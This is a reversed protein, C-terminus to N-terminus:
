GEFVGYKELILKGIKYLYTDAALRAERASAILEPRGSIFEGVKAPSDVEFNFTGKYGADILGRMIADYDVSYCLPATHMDGSIKKGYQRVTTFGSNDHLHVGGLKSGLRTIESYQDLGNCNAHGVDWNARVLPSGVGDIITLLDDATTVFYSEEPYAYGINEVLLEIGYKEAYPVLKKFVGIQREVFQERPLAQSPNGVHLTISPCGIKAAMEISRPTKRFYFDGGDDGMSNGAPEHAQVPTVGFKEFAARYEDIIKLYEDTFYISGPKFRTFFSVDMHTFGCKALHEVTETVTDYYTFLMGNTQSLYM